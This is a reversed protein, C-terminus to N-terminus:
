CTFVCYSQVFVINFTLVLVAKKGIFKVMKLQSLLGIATADNKFEDASLTQLIEMYDQLVGQVAKDTSLWRTRCARQLKHGTKHRKSEETPLQMSQLRLQMKMYAATKVCSYELWKYLQVLLCEITLEYKIDNNSEVCALAFQHCICHVKILRPNDRKLLVFVRHNKGVMVSARDSALSLFKQSDLGSKTM